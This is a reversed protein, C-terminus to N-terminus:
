FFKMLKKAVASGMAVGMGGMRFGGFVRNSVQKVIPYKNPGFAMIGSWRMDIEVEYGPLIDEKLKQILDNQIADNLEMETTTEGDIDLNRGGGFLIRGDLERFYYYGKDFHYIGRLHLNPIPKTILVQGRGPQIDEEPLLTKTFANTCIVLHSCTLTYSHNRCAGTISIEVSTGNDSFWKIEAGTRLEVKKETALIMLQRMMKGTHIQGEGKIKVVESCISPSFKYSNRQHESALSFVNYGTVPYLLSNLKDIEHLMYVESPNLLEASGDEKYDINADGLRNRLIQLGTKRFKFLEVVTEPPTSKMDDVLENFSGMCAFGANRTSAGYPLIGSEIVLVSKGPFKEKLEIATSLGTIGSGAVIFDYQLLSEKEWYSLM